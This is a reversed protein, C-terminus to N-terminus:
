SIWFLLSKMAIILSAKSTLSLDAGNRLIMSSIKLSRWWVRLVLPQLWNSTGLTQYWMWSVRTIWGTIRLGFICANPISTGIYAVCPIHDSTTKALPILLTNPFSTTWNASTFCWDLQVLLPDSQMNSWTFNRGKLPIELIGLNSIISTFLNM